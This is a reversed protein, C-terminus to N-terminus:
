ITKEQVQGKIIFFSTTGGCASSSACKAFKAGVTTQKVTCATFGANCYDTDSTMGGCCKGTSYIATDSAACFDFNNVLCNLCQNDYTAKATSATVSQHLLQITLLLLLLSFTSFYFM